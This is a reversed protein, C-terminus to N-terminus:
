NSRANYKQHIVHSQSLLAFVNVFKVGKVIQVNGEYPNHELEKLKSATALIKYEDDLSIYLM